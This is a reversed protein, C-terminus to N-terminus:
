ESTMNDLTQDDTSDILKLVDEYDVVPDYFQEDVVLRNCNAYATSIHAM